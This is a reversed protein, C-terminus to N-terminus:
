KLVARALSDNLGLSSNVLNDIKSRYVTPFNLELLWAQAPLQIARPIGIDVVVVRGARQRGPMVHLGVKDAHLAVTFDATIVAGEVRGTDPDVGSPIDISAVPGQADNAWAIAAAVGDRPPGSAATGLMADVVLVDPGPPTADGLESVPIGLRETIAAMRKAETSRPADGSARVIEVQWGADFLHRAIVDGDGGNNGSGVLVVARMLDGVRALIERAAALGAREMLLLPDISYEEHARRDGDRVVAAAILPTAGIIPPSTNLTLGGRTRHLVGLM